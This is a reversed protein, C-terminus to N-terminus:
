GSFATTARACRCAPTSPMVILRDGRRRQEVQWEGLHRADTCRCYRRACDRCCPYRIRGHDSRPNRSCCTRHPFRPDEDSSRRFPPHDPAAARRGRFLHGRFPVGFMTIRLKRDMWARTGADQVHYRAIKASNRDYPPTRNALPRQLSFRLEPRIILNHWGAVRKFLQKIFLCWRLSMEVRIRRSDLRFLPLKNRTKATLNHFDAANICCTTSTQQCIELCPGKRALSM